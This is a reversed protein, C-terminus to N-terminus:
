GVPSRSRLCALVKEATLPLERLRVGVADEIANAIAASAPLASIEGVGKAGFPGPGDREELLEVRLDPLDAACPMKYDGFNIARPRGDALRLEEMFTQGLSQLLGGHIQGMLGVPNIACGIDHVVVLKEIKVQGTDPDVRVEVAHCAFGTRGRAARHEVEERIVGGELRALQGALEDFCVSHSEGEAVFSGDEIRVGDERWGRAEAALACLRDRVRAAANAAAGGTANTVHSGGVGQDFPGTDTDGQEVRVLSDPVGLTRAVVQQVVTHAGGGQEPVGTRALVQGTGDVSVEVNAPGGGTGRESFALGRGGGPPLPASWDLGAVARELVALATKGEVPEGDLMVDGPRVVNRRRFEIPDLGLRRALLDTHSECAFTVQPQGPARMSGCPMHNTWVCSSVVRIHPICYGGPARRAGTMGPGARYGAYGGSGWHLTCERAVLRGDADVGSKIRILAAHRPIGAQFEENMSMVMRIPRRSTKALFYAVAEDMLFGKGGFDGGIPSPMVVFQEAPVGTAQSLYRPVSFPLKICTWVRVKGDPEIAVTCGHPELFGVHQMPVRFVDGSVHIAQRFGDDVNGKELVIRSNVNPQDSPFAPYEDGRQYSARDPHLVPASPRLAEDITSVAPLEDYDVKIAALAAEAADRSDAAVVAVKEGVYRVRDRALVPMDRLNKGILVDPLDAATLVAHVGAVARAASVDISRIRAHPLPSRLALGVLLGPLRVDGAYRAIGSVKAPGDVRLIADTSM